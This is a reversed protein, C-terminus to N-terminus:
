SRLNWYTGWVAALGLFAVLAMIAWAVKVMRKQSLYSLIWGWTILFTWFGNFAHFCTALVFVTYIVIYAPNKFTDRVTLLTATGFSKTEAIVENGHIHWSKL